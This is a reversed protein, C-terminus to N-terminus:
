SGSVGALEAAFGRYVNAAAWGTAWAHHANVSYRSYEEPSLGWVRELVDAIEAADIAVPLLWGDRGETVLRDTDGARTALAPISHAMAEMISVPVGESTSVNIFLSASSRAYYDLLEKNAVHGKLSFSGAPLLRSAHAHLRRLEQGAGGFHIWRFPVGREHVQALADVLLSVRKVPKLSSCSILELRPRHARPGVGGPEAVGLRRVSIKNELDPVDELLTRVGRESVPHVRDLMSVLLRRQPLFDLANADKMVDYRHARSVALVVRDGLERRLLVAELATVFLWYSYIVIDDSEGIAALIAPRARKWFELGRTTFYWDLLSRLPHGPSGTRSMLGSRAAQSANTVVHGARAPTSSPMHIPVVVVGGPLDRTRAMTREYMVPVVVIRKFREALYPLETELYEEGRYYPFYNTFLVLCDRQGAENDNM